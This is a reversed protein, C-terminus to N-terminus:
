PIEIIITQFLITLYINMKLFFTIKLLYYITNYLFHSLVLHPFSVIPGSKLKVVCIEGVVRTLRKVKVFLFEAKERFM